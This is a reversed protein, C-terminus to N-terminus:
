SALKRERSRQAAPFAQAIWSSLRRLGESVSVEARWGLERTIAATDSVYWLQDGPRWPHYSVLPAYGNMERIHRLLERLSVANEPGGGLNFARGAVRDISDLALLYARVADDVYLVDRVQYGDGYIAIPHQLAASILFHAVWGQDETGYQHPGYLCSM